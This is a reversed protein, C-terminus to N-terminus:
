NINKDLIEKLKGNNRMELVVIHNRSEQPNLKVKKGLLRECHKKDMEKDAKDGYYLEIESEFPMINKIDLLSQYFKDTLNLNSVYKCTNIFREDGMELKKENLVTQPSFVLLKDFKLLNGYLLCAYGGSSCGLGIIKKYPKKNILNRFLELTEYFNKTENKLGNLYYNCKIDRLFLKDIKNYQKLFNYFVFTPISGKSGFGAFTILLIEGENDEFWYNDTNKWPHNYNDNYDNDVNSTNQIIEKKEEIKIEEIKEEKIEDNLLPHYSSMPNTINKEKLQYGEKDFLFGILVLRNGDSVPKVGHLIDSKFFVGQNRELKIETELEKFHLEGGQYDTPESLSIVCSIKRYGTTGVTDRHYTYFGNKEGLYYGLKWQERYELNVQYETDIKEKIIKFIKKDIKSLLEDNSIFIDYRIKQQHDVRNGVKGENWIKRKNLEEKLEVILDEDLINNILNYNM